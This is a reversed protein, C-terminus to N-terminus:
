NKGGDKRIRNEKTIVGKKELKKIIIKILLFFGVKCMLVTYLPFKKNQKKKKQSNQKQKTSYDKSSAKDQQNQM